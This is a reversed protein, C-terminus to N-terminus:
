QILFRKPLGYEKFKWLNLSGQMFMKLGIYALKLQNCVQAILKILFPHKKLFISQSLLKIARKPIFSKSILSVVAVAFLEEKSRPYRLSLRFQYFSKHAEGEIDQPTIIGKELFIESLKTGPFITLSYIFLSFPRPLALLLKILEKKDEPTSLPNDFILDYVVDLNIEKAAQAFEKIMDVELKRNYVQESEQVSGTQIGVQVRRLGALKLKRLNNKDLCHVNFLIEFPLGIRQKYKACFEDIWYQPFVFTDDDFKIKRIKKFCRLGLEIESLIREVSGIRHYRQGKYLARYISNYCYSCNFPCGRSAFVRLERADILPDINKLKKDIFFKNEGGYDQLPLTDLNQILPRLDESIIRGNKKYCLNKIGEPTQNKSLAQTLELMPCEGEGRCVFDSYKLSEYPAVTAHIGGWIVKIDLSSKIKTTIDKAIKLFPSTFSIGLLKIELEKLLSVLLEKEKENPYRIDNNVWRKFFIIYTKFGNQRLLSSISRIGNNEVGYLSVLAINFM